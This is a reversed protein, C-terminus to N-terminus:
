ASKNWSREPKGDWRCYDLFTDFGDGYELYRQYRQKSRSLKPKPKIEGVIPTGLFCGLGNFETCQWGCACKDVDNGNGGRNCESCATWRAGNSDTFGHMVNRKVSVAGGDITEATKTSKNDNM